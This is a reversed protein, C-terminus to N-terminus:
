KPPRPKGARYLKQREHARSRLAPDFSKMGEMAKEQWRVAREFDGARAYAAALTDLYEPKKYETLECAKLALEVARRGDRLEKGGAVAFIWALNIYPPAFDPDGAISKELLTVAHPYEKKRLHDLGVYYYNGSEKTTGKKDDGVAPVLNFDRWKNQLVFRREEMTLWYWESGYPSREPKMLGEKAHERKLLFAHFLEHLLLNPELEKAVIYRWFIGDIFGLRVRHPDSREYFHAFAVAMDFQDTREWTEIAIRALMGSGDNREDGWKIRQSDIIELKIGVQMEM